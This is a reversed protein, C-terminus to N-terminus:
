LIGEFTFGRLELVRGSGANDLHALAQIREIQKAAFLTAVFLAVAESMFGKGRDEPRFVRYSIELGRYSYSPRYYNM